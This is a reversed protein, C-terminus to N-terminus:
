PSAQEEGTAVPRSPDTIWESWSGVYLTPQFGAVTLAFVTQSATVGSGCYAAVPQDERVGLDAFLGRLRTPPHLRGEADVTEAAPQNRAGPIHGAVPDVPETEGRFRAPVRADLLVGDAAVALAGATDVVPLSGAKVTVDGAAPTPEAETTPGGAAAWAAYGGDLVRVDVLGAWRLIWWARAAAGTPPADGADYVIVPHGARLGSRRLAAQLTEPDPLPHRGGAGPPGALDADLDLFVAGPLHGADYAVRGGGALTWRVDLVTPPDTRPLEGILGAVDVLHQRNAM